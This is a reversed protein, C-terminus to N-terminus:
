PEASPKALWGDQRLFQVIAFEDQVCSGNTLFALNECEIGEVSCAAGAIRLVDLVRDELRREKPYEFVLDTGGAEVASFDLEVGGLDHCARLNVALGEGAFVSRSLLARLRAGDHARMRLEQVEIGPRSLDPRPFIALQRPERALREIRPRWFEPDMLLHRSADGTLGM